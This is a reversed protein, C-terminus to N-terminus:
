SYLEHVPNGTCKESYVKTRSPVKTGLSPYPSPLPLGLGTSYRTDWAGTDESAPPCGPNKPRHYFHPEKDRPVRLYVPGGCSPCSHRGHSANNASVLENKQNYAERM